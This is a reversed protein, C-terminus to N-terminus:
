RTWRGSCRRSRNSWRRVCRWSGRATEHPADATFAGATVGAVVVQEVIDLVEMRKADIAARQPPALRTYERLAVNSALQAFEDHLNSAILTGVAEDLQSAPDPDADALRRRLRALIIDYADDLFERLLDHKSPFHYYLAAVTVGARSAMDRTSAGEYGDEGM